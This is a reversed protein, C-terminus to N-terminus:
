QRRIKHLYGYTNHIVDYIRKGAEPDAAAIRCFLEFNLMAFTKVANKAFRSLIPNDIFRGIWDIMQAKYRAFQLFYSFYARDSLLFSDIEDFVDFIQLRRQDWIQTLSNKQRSEHHGILYKSYLVFSSCKAYSMWHALNDNHVLTDSFHVGSRRLFDTSYLKHWPFNATRLIDSNNRADTTAPFILAGGTIAQWIAEDQALMRMQEFRGDADCYYWKFVLFDAPCGELVLACEDLAAPKLDDDADLFICYKEEAFAFGTNRAAGAGKQQTHRFLAVRSDKAAYDAVKEASCDTSYDDVVIIQRVLANGCVSDLAAEIFNDANRMPIVVTVFM